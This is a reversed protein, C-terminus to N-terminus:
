KLKIKTETYFQRMCKDVWWTTDAKADVIRFTRPIVALPQIVGNPNQLITEQREFFAAEYKRFRDNKWDNIILKGNGSITMWCISLATLSFIRFEGKLWNLKEYLLYKQSLSLLFFPWLLLFFFFVYNITRHQGLMGTAFYPLFSGAFVVVVIAALLIRYDFLFVRLKIKEANAVLLLSLLILPLNLIWTGWFRITQASAYFLSYLLNYRETFENSRTFNGPSFFVFASAVFSIIFLATILKQKEAKLRGRWVMVSFYFLPILFAGVENFGISIIVLLFASFLFAYKSPDKTALSKMLFIFHLLLFLNGLHYNCSGIFWYIGETITPMYCLYFLSGLLSAIVSFSFDVVLLRLLFLLVFPTAIISLFAAFQYFIIQGTVLPHFNVLVDASYRGNWHLYQNLIKQSFPINASATWGFCFDDAYPAAYFCIILYPLLAIALLFFLLINRKYNM